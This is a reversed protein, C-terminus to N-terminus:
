QRVVHWYGDRYVIQGEDEMSMLELREALTFEVALRRKVRLKQVVRGRARHSREIRANEQAKTAM